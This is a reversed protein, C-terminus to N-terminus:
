KTTEQLSVIAQRIFKGHGSVIEAEFKDEGPHIMEFLKDKYFLVVTSGSIRYEAQYQEYLRSLKEVTDHMLKDLEGTAVKVRAALMETGIEDLKGTKLADLLQKEM